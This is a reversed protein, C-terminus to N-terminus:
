PKKPYKLVGALVTCAGYLALILGIYYASACVLGYLIRTNMNAIASNAGIALAVGAGCWIGGFVLDRVANERPTRRWADDFPALKHNNVLWQRSQHSIDDEIRVEIGRRVVKVTTGDVYGSRGDLLGVPVWRRENLETALETQEFPDGYNLTAVVPSFSEPQAFIKIGFQAATWLSIPLCRGGEEIYKRRGDPLIVEHRNEGQTAANMEFVLAESLQGAPETADVTDYLPAEDGLLRMKIWRIEM